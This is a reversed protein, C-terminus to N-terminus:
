ERRGAIDVGVMDGEVMRGGAGVLAVLMAAMTTGTMKMRTSMTSM